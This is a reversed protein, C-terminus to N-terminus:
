PKKAAKVTVSNSRRSGAHNIREAERELTEIAETIRAQLQPDDADASVQEPDLQTLLIFRARLFAQEAESFRRFFRDIIARAEGKM